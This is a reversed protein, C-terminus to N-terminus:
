VTASNGGPDPPASNLDLRAITHLGASLATFDTSRALFGSWSTCPRARERSPTSSRVPCWTPSFGCGAPRAGRRIRAHTLLSEVETVVFRRPGMQAVTGTAAGHQDFFAQATVFDGPWRAPPSPPSASGRGHRQRTGRSAAGHRGHDLAQGPIMSTSSCATACSWTSRRRSSTISCIPRMARCAACRSPWDPMSAAVTCRPLRMPARISSPSGTGWSPWGCPTVAPAEVSTSCMSCRGTALLRSRM